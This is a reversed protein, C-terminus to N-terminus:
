KWHKPKSFINSSFIVLQMMILFLELIPLIIITDLENLKKASPVLSILQIIFRLIILGLVTKLQFSFTLLLTALIWFLLQSSYFLGLLLKHKLKYYKSASVHRRKQTIWTKFSTKTLSETFSSKTFCAAVNKSNAVQNIFLDDDGSQIQMHNIFGNVKFFENKQYALNRGVGMYPIGSKAYSFYQVATMLTEFRILKNLFSNSKKYAGYGLVISKKDNFFGAMESIWKVSVPKCDADTFLLSEHSSAKIGLTLAYKKNGWFAENNEVNVVKINSHQKKFSNIVDLTHDSSADNILIIEFNPYEQNIISPLFAQLNNAENKACIIVSVPDKKQSQKKTKSYAFKIFLGGYFFLQIFVIGFFLYLLIDLILM